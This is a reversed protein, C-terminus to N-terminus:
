RSTGILQCNRKWFENRAITEQLEDSNFTEGTKYVKELASQQSAEFVRGLIFDATPGELRLVVALPVEESIDKRQVKGSRVAAIFKLGQEYGHRFLREQEKPNKSKSALSSCEFASWAIRGLLAYEKSSQAMAVNTSALGILLTILSRFYKFRRM